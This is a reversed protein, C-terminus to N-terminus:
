GFLDALSELSGGGGSAGARASPARRPLGGAVGAPEFVIGDLLVPSGSSLSVVAGAPFTDPTVSLPTSGVILTGSGSTAALDDNTPRYGPPLIFAYGDESSEGAGGGCTGDGGPADNPFAVGTLHVYGLSDKYFGTPNFREPLPPTQNPTWICDGEGGNNFQPNGPTGVVHLAEASAIDARRVQGNQIDSTRVANGKIKKTTVANNAIDSTKVQGNKIDGSNVSNRGQLALASGGAIAFFLALCAIVTAPSPRGLKKLM